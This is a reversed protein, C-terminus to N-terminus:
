PKEEAPAAEKTPDPARGGGKQFGKKIDRAMKPGAHKAEEYAERAGESISQGTEVAFDRSTEYAERSDDVVARGVEGFTRGISKDGASITEPAAVLFCCVMLALIRAPM